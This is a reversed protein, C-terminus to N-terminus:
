ISFDLTRGTHDPVGSKNAEACLEEVTIQEMRMMWETQLKRCLPRIVTNGLQSGAEYALPDDATDLSSVTRVIDGLSIASRDRALRYGGHPGRVGSLIRVRVLQQLVPELYRAPIGQRKSIESSRVPKGASNHAIDLVAEFAYILKRSLMSM